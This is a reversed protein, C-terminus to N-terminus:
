DGMGAPGLRQVAQVLAHLAGDVDHGTNMRSFSFRLSARAEGDDVGMARLVHSADPVGSSCASGISCAVGLRDLVALLSQADLGPLAFNSTNPLRFERHGHFVVSPFRERLGDEFRNRMSLVRPMEQVSALKALEAAVGFGVIGPVNETGARRGNEQGGGLLLPPLGLGARVFLAGAGKPGHLKHASVSVLHAPFERLDIAVKGAAQVADAHFVIRREDAIRAMEEVPFLVGTENNAWVVTVLATDDRLARRYEDLDPRGDADVRLRTMAWGERELQECLNKVASHEISSTVVHRKHPQAALAGRIATNVSETGGSTFVVSEAPAGLLAAVQARAEEVARRAERGAAHPSSPNGYKEGLFPLMADRVRPDVPTTANNDLYIM